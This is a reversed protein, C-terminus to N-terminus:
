KDGGDENKLVKLFSLFRYSVTPKFNPCESYGVCILPRFWGRFTCYDYYGKPTIQQYKCLKM